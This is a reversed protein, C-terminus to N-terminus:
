SCNISPTPRSFPQNCPSQCGFSRPRTRNMGIPNEKFRNCIQRLTKPTDRYSQYTASFYPNLVVGPLVRVQSRRILFGQITREYTSAIIVSIHTKQADFRIAYENCVPHSSSVHQSGLSFHRGVSAWLDTIFELLKASARDLSDTDTQAAMRM